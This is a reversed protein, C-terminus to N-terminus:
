GYCTRHSSIDGIGRWHQRWDGKWSTISFTRGALQFYSLTRAKTSTGYEVVGDVGGNRPLLFRMLGDGHVTDLMGM